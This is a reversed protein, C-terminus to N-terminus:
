KSRNQAVRVMHVGQEDLYRPSKGAMGGDLETSGLRRNETPTSWLPTM